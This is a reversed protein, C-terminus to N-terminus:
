QSKILKASHFGVPTALRVWYVGPAVARSSAERGDWMLEHRGAGITRAMLRTVLRGRVDYVDLAAPGLTSLGFDIRTSSRFPNPWVRLFATEAGLTQVEVPGHWTSAGSRDVAVLWYRLSGAPVELDRHEYFKNGRLLTPTVRMRVGDDVERYVQFGLLDEVGVAAHWRVIVDGDVREAWLESVSLAVPTDDWRAIYHSAKGGMRTFGGGVYLDDDYSAFAYPIWNCGSGMAQWRAGDWRAIRSADTEAAPGFRGGAIVQGEHIAVAHVEDNLGPLASWDSGDWQAIFSAPTNGAFLFHGGAILKGDLVTLDQIDADSYPQVGSMGGGLPSWSTGDWIAIRNASVGGISTFRGGAVLKGQYVSLAVVWNGVIAGLDHWSTGDWRLVGERGGAYLTGEVHLLTALYSMPPPPLFRWTSGDWEAIQHATGNLPDRLSGSVFVREGDVAIDRVYEAQLGFSAWSDGDWRALAAVELTGAVTFQGGVLLDSGHVAFAEVIGNLGLGSIRARPDVARWVNGDWAAVNSAANSGAARFEGGVVLESEFVAFGYIHQDALWEGVPSWAAGDWQAIRYAEGSGARSFLGAAILRGDYEALRDVSGNMGGAVSKWIAGDWQAINDVAVGGAMLFRGGAVLKGDHVTLALVLEGSDTDSGIGGGVPSWRSGDWAAIRRISQGGISTFGGGVVLRGEYSTLAWIQQGIPLESTPLLTWSMGDWQALGYFTTSDQDFWGCVFLKGDVVAFQTVTQLRAGSPLEVAWPRLEVGNWVALNAAPIDGIHDFNGAVFLENGYSAIHGIYARSLHSLVRDGLRSWASGDWRALHDVAVGGALTFRGGIILEGGHVAMCSVPGDLGAGPWAFGDWWHEDGQAAWARTSNWSALVCLM